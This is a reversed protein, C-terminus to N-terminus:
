KNETNKIYKEFTVNFENFNKTENLATFIAFHVVM